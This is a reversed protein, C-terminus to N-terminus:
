IVEMLMQGVWLFPIWAHIQPPWRREHSQAVLRAQSYGHQDPHEEIHSEHSTLQPVPRSLDGMFTELQATWVNGKIKTSSIRGLFTRPTKTWPGIPTRGWYWQLFIKPVGINQQLLVHVEPKTILLTIEARRAPLNAQYTVQNVSALVTGASDVVGTYTKGDITIEGHGNWLYAPQNGSEPSFDSIDCTMIWYYDAKIMADPIGGM